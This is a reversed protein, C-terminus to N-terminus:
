FEEKERKLVITLEHDAMGPRSVIVRLKLKVPLRGSLDTGTIVVKEQDLASTPLLLRLNMRPHLVHQLLLQVSDHPMFPVELSEPDQPTYHHSGLRKHAMAVVDSTTIGGICAELHFLSIDDEDSKPRMMQASIPKLTLTSPAAQPDPVPVPTSYFVGLTELGIRVSVTSESSALAAPVFVDVIHHPRNGQQSKWVSTQLPYEDDLEAHFDLRKGSTLLPMALDLSLLYGQAGYRSLPQTGVLKTAVPQAFRQLHLTPSVWEYTVLRADTTEFAIHVAELDRMALYPVLLRLKGNAPVSDLVVLGSSDAFTAGPTVPFVTQRLERSQPRNAIAHVITAPLAALHAFAEFFGALGRRHRPRPMKSANSVWETTWAHLYLPGRPNGVSSLDLELLTGAGLSDHFYTENVVAAPFLTQAQLSIAALLGLGLLLAKQLKM